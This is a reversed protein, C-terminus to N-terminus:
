PEHEGIKLSVEEKAHLNNKGKEQKKMLAMTGPPLEDERHQRGQRAHHFTYVLPVQPDPLTM